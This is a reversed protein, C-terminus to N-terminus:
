NTVGYSETPEHDPEARLLGTSHETRTSRAEAGAEGCTVSALRAVPTIVFIHIPLARAKFLNCM